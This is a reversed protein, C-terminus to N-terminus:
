GEDVGARRRGSSGARAPKKAAEAAAAAKQREWAAHDSAHVFEKFEKLKLEFELSSEDRVLGRREPNLRLAEAAM